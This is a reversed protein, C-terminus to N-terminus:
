ASHDSGGPTRGAAYRGRSTGRLWGSPDRREVVGGTTRGGGTVSRDHVPPAIAVGPDATRKRPDSSFRRPGLWARLGVAPLWWASHGLLFFAGLGAGHCTM